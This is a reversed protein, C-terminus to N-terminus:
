LQTGNVSRELARVRERAEKHHPHIDLVLKYADYAEEPQEVREFLTGLGFLADYHRPDLALARNLDHVAPGVRGALAFAQARGYWGEAFDPAHDTMATFHEIAAVYDESEMAKRGRKLLMDIAPSGSQARLMEIEREIRRADSTNATRLREFLEDPTAAPLDGGPLAVEPMVPKQMPGEAQALALPSFCVIAVTAAVTLKLNFAHISM